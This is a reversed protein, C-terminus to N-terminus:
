HYDVLEVNESNNDIWEFCIRYQDNISNANQSAKCRLWKALPCLFRRVNRFIKNATLGTKGVRYAGGDGGSGRVGAAQRGANGMSFETGMVAPRASEQMAGELARAALKKGTSLGAKPIGGINLPDLLIEQAFGMLEGYDKQSEEFTEDIGYSGGMPNGAMLNLIGAAGRLPYTFGEAFLKLM